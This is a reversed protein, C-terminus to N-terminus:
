QYVESLKDVEGRKQLDGENCATILGNVEDRYMARDNLDEWEAGNGIHNGQDDMLATATVQFELGAVKIEAKTPLAHVNALIGRQHAPNVHFVDICTGMLNNVDFNPLVTRIQTQHKTLMVKLEPNIYTIELDKNCTMFLASAGEIMSFLSEARAAEQRRATVDQWELSAGIHNGGADLMASINLAFTLNGVQIDAQHPLNRADGLIQRQHAPNQHFIDICVGILNSFDINPFAGKFENINENILAVTAPNAYTIELDLNVTMSPTASGEITSQMRAAADEQARLNTVDQWELNAGIHEGTADRMASINLAFTLKGVTIDATHPLNKADGLIGRQYSPNKHFVDICVGIVNNFDISPFAGQFEDINEKILAVTAPNAYTIELDRNITMSATASGELSSRMRAAAEGQERDATVDQWELCSGQHTGSDDVMASINLAFTKPGITIDARHPLNAPNSLLQRQYSPNKHFGDICAGILADPDFGPFVEKFLDKNEQVLAVTAQNAYTINLDTDCLMINVGANEVASRLIDGDVTSTGNGAKETTEM